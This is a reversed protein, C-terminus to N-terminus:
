AIPKNSVRVLPDRVSDGAGAATRRLLQDHEDRPAHLGELRRLGIRPRRRNGERRRVRRRDGRRQHRHQRQRHRLRLGAPSCFLEAERVDQTFIASALGQPVDNHIAIAEDFADTACSTSSRPSPRRSSSRRTPRSRSSRRGCTSAAPRCARPSAAAATSRAARSGRGAAAGSGDGRPRAADILPGVLAGTTWRIASRCGRTSRWCGSSCSTPSRDRPRDAPAADHLAPRVHRRRRLRDGARGTGSRGLARRDDGNNGGLELLSRGLRAAVTQAVARGM